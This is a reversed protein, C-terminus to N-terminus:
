PSTGGTKQSRYLGRDRCDAAPWIRTPTVPQGRSYSGPWDALHIQHGLGPDTGRRLDEPDVVEGQPLATDVPGDQHIDSRPLRDVQQRVPFGAGQLGPQLRMRACLHDAPVPGASVGLAGPVAGRIRDLDSIAPMQPVVQTLVDLFRDSGVTAAHRGRGARGLVATTARGAGPLGRRRSLGFPQMIDAAPFPAQHGAGAVAVGRDVAQQGGPVGLPRGCLDQGEAAPSRTM